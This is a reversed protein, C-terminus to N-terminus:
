GRGVPDPIWRGAQVRHWWHRAMRRRRRTYYEVEMLDLSAESCLRLCVSDFPDFGCGSTLPQGDQVREGLARVREVVSWGVRLADALPERSELLPRVALWGAFRANEMYWQNMDPTPQNSPPPGCTLGAGWEGGKVIARASGLGRM